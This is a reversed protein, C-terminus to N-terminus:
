ASSPMRSLKLHSSNLRTSKRDLRVIAGVPNHHKATNDELDEEMKDAHFQRAEEVRADFVPDRNRERAVTDHSVGAQEAARYMTGRKRVAVIFRERWDTPLAPGSKRKRRTKSPATNAPDAM